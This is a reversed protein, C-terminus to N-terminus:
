LAVAAIRSGDALGPVLARQLAHDAAAVLLASAVVTPTFPGPALARGLGEGGVVLEELGWGSGGLEEPVHLGLWGLGTIDNWLDPMEENPAEILKRASGRADRTRLLDSATDALARHDDTLAISM